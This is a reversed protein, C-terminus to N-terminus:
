SLVSFYSRVAFDISDHTLAVPTEEYMCFNRIQLLLDRPHCARLPRSSKQYHTQILYDIAERNYTVNLKRCMVQFLRHFMEPTPGPVEVKYPIRRLFADDVLDRPELNTSFIVLQDFPVRIKKGNPLNLLDYRKELPVIWRNLLEDVPMRQRGFDDILLVGGNSKFQLPAESIHTGADESVELESMTLEGGAIVTPRRVCIWRQDVDAPDVGPFESSDVPIPEHIAPDFVRVVHGDILVARPIWMPEGLARAVREAISTKGNGPEGFLFLGRGSNIAPGLIRLLNPDVLLDDFARQLDSSRVRVGAITQRTMMANYQSIPVPLAGFYTCERAFERASNMGRETILYTYDGAVAEGKLVVLQERRLTTLIQEALPFLLRIHAAIARGQLAGRAALLKLILRSIWDDSIGLARLNRPVAPCPTSQQQTTQAQAAQPVPVVREPQEYEANAASSTGSVSSTDPPAAPQTTGTASPASQVTLEKRPNAPTSARMEAWLDDLFESISERSQTM